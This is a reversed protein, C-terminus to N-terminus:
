AVKIHTNPEMFCPSQQEASLSETYSNKVSTVEQAHESVHVQFTNQTMDLHQFLMLFLINM